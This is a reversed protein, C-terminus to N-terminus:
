IRRVWKSYSLTWNDPLVRDYGRRANPDLFGVSTCELIKAIEAVQEEYHLIASTSSKSYAWWILAEWDLNAKQEKKLIVFGDDCVFLLSRKLALDLYVDETRIRGNQPELAKRLGPLIYDWHPKFDEKLTLQRDM